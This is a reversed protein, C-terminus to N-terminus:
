AALMRLMLVADYVSYRGDFNLDISTPLAIEAGVLYQLLLTADAVTVVGDCDVDAVRQYTSLTEMWEGIIPAVVNYGRETLHLNDQMYLGGNTNVDLTESLAEDNYLDLYKIGWKDCIKKATDIYEGYGNHKKYPTQYNIIYGIAATDGYYEVAKCFTYELAGAFTTKDFDAANYSNSITGEPVSNNADNVGGQIVVYDYDVDKVSEFQGAVGGNKLLQGGVGKNTVKALYNWAIRGAWGGRGLTEKVYRADAHAACISDGVFLIESGALPSKPQLEVLDYYEAATMTGHKVAFYEGAWYRNIVSIYYVDNPVTYSYIAYDSPEGYGTAPLYTLDSKLIAEGRTGKPALAKLFPNGLYDFCSLDFGQSVQVPGYSITEGPTVKILHSSHHDKGTSITGNGNVVTRQYELLNNYCNAGDKADWYNHFQQKGFPVNKTLLFKEHVQTRVPLAITGDQTATYAYVVFAKNDFYDYVNLTGEPNTFMGATGNAVTKSLDGATNTFVLQYGQSYDAPGFYVTDGAKVNYKETAYYEPRDQWTPAAAGAKWLGLGYADRNYLNDSDKLPTAVKRVSYVNNFVTHNVFNVYYVNEPVTYRLIMGPNTGDNSSNALKTISAHTQKVTGTVQERNIGFGVLQYSNTKDWCPGFELVDGPKVAISHTSNHMDKKTWSGDANYHGSQLDVTKQYLNAGPKNDWYNYFNQTTLPQNKTVMFNSNYKMPAVIGVYGAVKARYAYLVQGNDFTDVIKLTGNNADYTDNNASKVEAGSTMEKATYFALQYGQAPDAPGYYIVDNKAVQVTSAYFENSEKKGTGSWRGAVPAANNYLNHLTTHPNKAAVYDKWNQLTFEQNKTLLFSNSTVVECTVKVSTVGEPVTYKCFVMNGSTDDELTFATYNAINGTNLELSKDVVGNKFAVLQYGQTTRAPGFMLVDGGQVAVADTSYFKDNAKLAGNGGTAQDVVAERDKSKTYLNVLQEAYSKVPATEAAMATPLVICALMSILMAAVALLSWVRKM